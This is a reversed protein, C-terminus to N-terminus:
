TNYSHQETMLSVIHFGDIGWIFTLIIKQTGIQQNVKQPGDDRSGSWKTYHHFKLTLWNEDGTAFRQFKNREHAKLIPLSERCTEM